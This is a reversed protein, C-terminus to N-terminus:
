ATLDSTCFGCKSAKMPVTNLCYPCEKSDPPPPVEKKSYNLLYTYPKVVFFFLVAAIIVFTILANFFLGIHFVSGRIQFYYASFDLKGPIGILPTVIDSVFATVVGSFAAGVVFAVALDILNGRLLFAKFENLTNNANNKM